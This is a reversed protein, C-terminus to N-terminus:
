ERPAGYLYHELNRALDHPGGHEMPALALFPDSAWDGAEVATGLRVRKGPSPRERATGPSKETQGHSQVVRRM